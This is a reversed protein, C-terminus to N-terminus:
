RCADDKRAQEVIRRILEPRTQEPHSTARKEDIWALLDPQIRVGVTLGKGTAPRGRSKKNASKEQDSM